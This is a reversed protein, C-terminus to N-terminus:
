LKAIQRKMTKDDGNAWYTPLKLEFVMRLEGDNGANKALTRFPTQYDRGGDKTKEAKLGHHKCIPMLYSTGMSELAIDLLADLHKTSLPWTVNNLADCIALDFKERMAAEREQEKKRNEKEKPSKEYDSHQAHHDKCEERLRDREARLREIVRRDVAPDDSAVPEGSLIAGGCGELLTMLGHVAHPCQPGREPDAWVPNDAGYAYCVALVKQRLEERM